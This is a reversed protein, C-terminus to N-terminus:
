VVSKRDPLSTVVTFQGATAPAAIPISGKQGSLECNGIMDAAMAPASLALAAVAALLLRKTLAM